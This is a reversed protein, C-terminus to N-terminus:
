SRQEIQVCFKGEESEERDHGNTEKKDYQARDNGDEFGAESETEPTYPPLLKHLLGFLACTVISIIGGIRFSWRMGVADILAGFVIM